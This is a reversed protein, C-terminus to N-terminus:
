YVFDVSFGKTDIQQPNFWLNDRRYFVVKPSDVWKKTRKLKPSEPRCCNEAIQGCHLFDKRRIPPNRKRRNQNRRNPGTATKPSKVAICLFGKPSDGQKATKDSEAIRSEAIRTSGVRGSARPRAEM